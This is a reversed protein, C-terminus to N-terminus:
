TTREQVAFQFTYHHLKRYFSFPKLGKHGLSGSHPRKARIKKSFKM